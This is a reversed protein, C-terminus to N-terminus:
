QAPADVSTIVYVMEPEKELVGAALSNEACIDSGVPLKPPVGTVIPILVEVAPPVIAHVKGEVKSVLLRYRNLTTLEFGGTFPDSLPALRVM